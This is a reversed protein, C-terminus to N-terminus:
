GEVVRRGVIKGLVVILFRILLLLIINLALVLGLTQILTTMVSQVASLAVGKLMVFAGLYWALAILIGVLLLYPLIGELDRKSSFMSNSIVFFLYFLGLLYWIDNSGFLQRQALQVSVAEFAGPIVTAIWTLLGLGVLLPALGITYRRIPDSQVIEVSGLHTEDKSVVQPTLTLKGTRVGLVEAVILHSLEHMLTGPFLILTVTTFAISKSVTLLYMFTYISQTVGRSLFYLVALEVIFIAVSMM